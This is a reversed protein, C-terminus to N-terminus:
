EMSPRRRRRSQSTPRPLFCVNKPYGGRREGGLRLREGGRLLLREGLRVGDRDGRREGEGSRPVSPGLVAETTTNNDSIPRQTQAM